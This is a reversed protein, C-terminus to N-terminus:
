KPEGQPITQNGGGFDAALPPRQSTQREGQARQMVHPLGLVASKFLARLQFEFEELKDDLLANLALGLSIDILHSGQGDLLHAKMIQWDADSVKVSVLKSHKTREADRTTKEHALFVLYGLEKQTRGHAAQELHALAQEDSLTPSM